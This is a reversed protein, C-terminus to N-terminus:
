DRCNFNYTTILAEGEAIVVVGGKDAIKMAVRMERKLRDIDRLADRKTVVYKDQDVAGHDLVYDILSQSMGRQSM